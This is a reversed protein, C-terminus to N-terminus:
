PRMIDYELRDLREALPKVMTRRDWVIYGFLAVILTIIVGFLALMTNQLGISVAMEAGIIALQIIIYPPSYQVQKPHTLCLRLTHMGLRLRPVLSM